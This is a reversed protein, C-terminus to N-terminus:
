HVVRNNQAADGRIALSAAVTQWFRAEQTEGEALAEKALKEAYAHANWGHRDSLEHAMRSVEIYLDNMTM